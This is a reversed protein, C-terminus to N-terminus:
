FQPAAPTAILHQRLVETLSPLVTKTSPVCLTQSAQVRLLKVGFQDETFVERDDKAQKNLQYCVLHSNPDVITDEGNKVVPNCLTLPKEVFADVDTTFQDLLAVPHPEFSEGNALKVKHCEFHNLFLDGPSSQPMEGGEGKVTPLCLQSPGEVKLVLTGFQNTVEVFRAETPKPDVDKLNYCSLHAAPDIIGEGNKDVPLCFNKLKDATATITDFQDVLLVPVPSFDDTKAAYCQFHDVGEPTVFSLRQGFIEKENDVLPATDDDGDWVVLYENDMSNYAVAPNAAIFDNRINPDTESDDGMDSIRFDTGIEAGTAANIRQGFIEFEGDVLPATDDEGEWVVLYENDMSNYAVAPHFARFYDRIGPDTESDDGMDSIRFDNAGIEPDVTVPYVARSLAQGDVRIRTELASM